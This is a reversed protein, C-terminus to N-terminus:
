DPLGCLSGSNISCRRVPSNYPSSVVDGTIQYGPPNFVGQREKQTVVLAATLRGAILALPIPQNGTNGLSEFLEWTQGM